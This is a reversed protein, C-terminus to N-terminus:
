KLNDWTFRFFMKWTASLNANQTISYFFNRYDYFIVYDGAINIASPYSYKDSIYKLEAQPLNYRTVIYPDIKNKKPDGIQQSKPLISKMKIDIQQIPKDFNLFIKATSTVTKYSSGFVFIENDPAKLTKLIEYVRDYFLDVEERGQYYQVVSKGSKSFLSELGPMMEELQKRKKEQLDILKEPDSALYKIRKGQVATKLFGLKLLSDVHYYIGTREIQAEEAIESITGGGLSLSAIYIKAEKETLGQDILTKIYKSNHLSKM